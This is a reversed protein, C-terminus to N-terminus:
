DNIQDEVMKNIVNKLIENREKNDIDKYKEKVFGVLLLQSKEIDYTAMPTNNYGKFNFMFESVKVMSKIIIELGYITVDEPIDVYNSQPFFIKM